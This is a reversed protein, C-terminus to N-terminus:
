KLITVTFEFLEYSHDIILTYPPNINIISSIKDPDSYYLNQKRRNLDNKSTLLNFSLGKRAKTFLLDLTHTLYNEWEQISTSGKINFIGSLIVYDWNQNFPLTTFFRSAENPQRLTALNIMEEVIDVGTYKPFLNKNKLYDLFAGYGCGFDLVSDAKDLSLFEILKEFRQVQSKESNWDVGKATSGFEMIRKRYYDQIELFM